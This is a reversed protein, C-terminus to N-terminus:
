TVTKLCTTSNINLKELFSLVKLKILVCVVNIYMCFLTYKSISVQDLHEKNIQAKKKPVRKKAQLAAISKQIGSNEFPNIQM